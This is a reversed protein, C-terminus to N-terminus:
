GPGSCCATTLRSVKTAVCCDDCQMVNCGPKATPPSLDPSKSFLGAGAPQSKQLQMPLAVDSTVQGMVGKIHSRQSPLSGAEPFKLLRQCTM